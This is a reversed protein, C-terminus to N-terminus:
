EGLIQFGFCYQGMMHQVSGTPYLSRTRSNPRQIAFLGIFDPKKRFDHRKSNAPNQVFEPRAPTAKELHGGSRLRHDGGVSPDERREPLHRLFGPYASTTQDLSLVIRSALARPVTGRHDPGPTSLQQHSLRPAPRERRRLLSHAAPAHPLSALEPSRHPSHDSRLATGHLSRGWAVRLSPLAHQARRAHRLVGLSPHDPLSAPLRHLGPRPSLVGRGGAG